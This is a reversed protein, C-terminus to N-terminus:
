AKALRKMTKAVKIHEAGCESKHITLARVLHGEAEELLKQQTDRAPCM